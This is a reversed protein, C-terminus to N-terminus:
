SRLILSHLEDLLDDAQKQDIAQLTLLTLLHGEIKQVREVFEESSANAKSYAQGLAIAQDSLERATDSVPSAQAIGAYNWQTGRANKSVQLAHEIFHFVEQQM